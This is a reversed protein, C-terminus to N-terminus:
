QLMVTVVGIDAELSAKFERCLEEPDLKMCDHCYAAVMGIGEGEPMLVAWGCVEGHHLDNQCYGCAPFMGDDFAKDAIQMWNTVTMFMERAHLDGADGAAMMASIASTPIIRLTLKVGDQKRFEALEKDYNKRWNNM